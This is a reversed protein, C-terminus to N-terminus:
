DKKSKDYKRKIKNFNCVLKGLSPINFGTKYKKLEEISINDKLPIGKITEKIYKWYYKYIRNVISEEINLDNAVIKVIEKYTM